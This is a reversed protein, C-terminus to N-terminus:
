PSPLIGGTILPYSCGFDAPISTIKHGFVLADFYGPARNPLPVTIRVAVPAFAVSAAKSALPAPPYGFEFFFPPTRRQKSQCHGGVKVINRVIFFTNMLITKARNPPVNIPKRAETPKSFSEMHGYIIPIRPAILKSKTAKRCGELCQYEKLKVEAYRWLIYFICVLIGLVFVVALVLIGELSHTTV